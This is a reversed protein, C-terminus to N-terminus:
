PRLKYKYKKGNKNAGGKPNPNCEDYCIESCGSVYTLNNDSRKLCDDMCKDCTANSGGIAAVVNFSAGSMSQSLPHPSTPTSLVSRVKNRSLPSLALVLAAALVLGIAPIGIKVSRSM